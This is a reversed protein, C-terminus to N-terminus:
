DFKNGSSTVILPGNLTERIEQMVMLISALVEQDSGGKSGESSKESSSGTSKVASETKTESMVGAEGTAQSEPKENEVQSASVSEQSTKSVPAPIEKSMKLPSSEIKAQLASPSKATQETQKISEISVPSTTQAIEKSVEQIKKGETKKETKEGSESEKTSKKKLGSLLGGLGLSDLFGQMPSEAASEGKEETSVPEVAGSAPETKETSESGEIKQISAPQSATTSPTSPPASVAPTELSKAEGVSEMSPKSVETKIGAETKIEGAEPSKLASSVAEVPAPEKKEGISITEEKPIAIPEKSGETKKAEEGVSEISKTESKLTELTKTESKLTELTKTETKETTTSSTEKEKTTETKIENKVGELSKPNFSKLAEDFKKEADNFDPNKIGLEKLLLAVGNLLINHKSLTDNLMKMNMEPGPNKVLDETQLFLDMLSRLTGAGSEEVRSSVDEFSDAGELDKIRIHGSIIESIPRTLIDNAYRSRTAAVKEAKEKIAVEEISEGEELKKKFSTIEKGIVPSFFDYAEKKSAKEPDIKQEAASVEEIFAKRVEGSVEGVAKINKASDGLETTGRSAIFRDLTKKDETIDKGSFVRGKNEEAL